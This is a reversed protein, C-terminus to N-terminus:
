SRDIKLPTNREATVLPELDSALLPLSFYFGQVEDCGIDRLTYFQEATEVGEAVVRMGLNHGLSVIAKFISRDKESVTLGLVFTRDVKLRDVPFSKLYAMSSYGVGFDDIALQLGLGKLSKLTAIFKEPEVALCSETIELEILEPRIGTRRLIAEVTQLFRADRFQKPSVNVSVLLPGVTSESWLRAQRCASELVWEGIPEILGTEEALPIFRSPSVLGRKAKWRILAEVGVIAESVLDLKPQYHLLFEQKEVARRLRHELDLRDLVRQNLMPTFFQFNNRGTQKAQYMAADAHKLLTDVDKGDEPYLSIGLSCTLVLERDKIQVPKGVDALIRSMTTLVADNGVKLDPMLLVFEDGGLRAVTELRAVTDSGRLCHQLRNAMVGILEDGAEHGLSDNIYKFNDLDVFVVAVRTNEREAILMAQQLRDVFLVRNPLGTLADHTAQHALQMEYSKRETIDEVTGEYYLPEGAADRVERANEAIWIVEGNKRYIQSEFNNIVGHRRIMRMFEARRNPDVYLTRGIDHLTSMMEGPSAYGYIRALAPNISLYRGDVSTQFIGEVTNEVIDRYRAEAHSLAQENEKRATIDEVIGQIAELTGDDRVIGAGREWVWRLTGDARRIRYELDFRNGSHVAQHIEARVRERDDPHTIEEYSIRSNLLLEEPRYGTLASCGVSVFEMTWHADDRCRYVMGELQDLLTKLLREQDRRLHRNAINEAFSLKQM